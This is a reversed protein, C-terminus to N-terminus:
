SSRRASTPPRLEAATLPRTVLSNSLIPMLRNSCCRTCASALHLRRHLGGRAARAGHRWAHAPAARRRADHWGTCRAPRTCARASRAPAHADPRLSFKLPHIGIGDPELLAGAAEREDCYDRRVEDAGLLRTAYGFTERM